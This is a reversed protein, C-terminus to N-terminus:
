IIKKYMPADDIIKLYFVIPLIFGIIPNTTCGLITIADGIGPIAVALAFCIICMGITVLANQKNNMGSQSYVLEEYTDKSPLVCMPAAAFIAFLLVLVAIKMAWNQYQVELVNQKDILIKLNAADGILGLYGFVSALIYLVVVSGSGRIIVKEMRDYSRNNLERYVIPINPQYMFAFVVFPIASVLGKYSVDFYEAKKFNDGMSPVQNRDVLFLFVLCLVLYFSCTVGFLSNFRLVGVKRPLSLPILVLFTYLTAWFLQGEYKGDALIRPLKDMSGAFIELIRPILTKVFVIYSVVFGLLTSCNCWGTFIVMKRGFCYDAFDEYKDSGVKEACSVLLMGCFYSIAAGFIILLTALVIGNQASLYPLSITGAGLIATVLSFISGNMGGARFKRRFIVVPSIILSSVIRRVPSKPTNDLNCIDVTFFSDIKYIIFKANVM